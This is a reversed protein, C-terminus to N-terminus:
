AAERRFRLVTKDDALRVTLVGADTLTGQDLEDLDIEGGLSWDARNREGDDDLFRITAGQAHYTGDDDDRDMRTRGGCTERVTTELRWRGDERLLLTGATV